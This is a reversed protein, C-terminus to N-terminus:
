PESPRRTRSSTASRHPSTTVSRPALATAPEKSRINNTNATRNEALVRNPSRHLTESQPEPQVRGRGEHADPDVKSFGGMTDILADRIVGPARGTPLHVLMTYRTAREVLAGIASKNDKGIIPDGEWHGPVAREAVEAPRDSIVVMAAAMRPQRQQAQRRPRCMARGARLTRALERRVVGRGQAYLARYITKHSVRMEPQDPLDRRLRRTIQEPSWRFTLHEQVFAHLRPNGALKRIKPRPRRSDARARAAHPPLGGYGPHNSRRIERNITSPSRGLEAATSRASDPRRQAATSNDRPVPPM